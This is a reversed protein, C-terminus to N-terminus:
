YEQDIKKRSRIRNQKDRESVIESTTMKRLNDSHKFNRRCKAFLKAQKKKM